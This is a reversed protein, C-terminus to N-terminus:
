TYGKVGLLLLRLVRTEGVPVLKLAAIGLSGDTPVITPGPDTMQGCLLYYAYIIIAFGNAFTFLLRLSDTSLRRM